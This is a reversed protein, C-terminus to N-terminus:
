PVTGAQMISTGLVQRLSAHLLHTATHHARVGRRHRADVEARLGVQGKSLMDTLVRFEAEDVERGEPTEPSEAQEVKVRLVLGGEYPILADEVRLELKSL